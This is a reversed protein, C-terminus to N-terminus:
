SADLGGRDVGEYGMVPRIEVRGFHVTPLKAAWEIADDLGGVDVVYFGGLVEKTESFPGDTLLREGDRVAVATATHSPALGEGALLVGAQAAERNFADFAALTQQLAEPPADAFGAEDAYLTLVFKM